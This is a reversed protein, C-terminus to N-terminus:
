RHLGVGTAGAQGAAQEAQRSPQNTRLCRGGQLVQFGEEEVEEVEVEEVSSVAWVEEVVGPPLIQPSSQTMRAMRRREWQIMRTMRMQLLALLLDILLLEGGAWGEEQAEKVEGRVGVAVGSDAAEGTQQGVRAQVWRSQRQGRTM